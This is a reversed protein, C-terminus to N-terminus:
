EVVKLIEDFIKISEPFYKQIAEWSEPNNVKASYMEAFGEKGNNRSTWYKSGHGAGFPYDTITMISEFMDSINGRAILSYESIYDMQHGFEHFVTQYATNISSGKTVKSINLCVADVFPSYFACNAKKGTKEKYEKGTITKFNNCVSNWAKKCENPAKNLHDIIAGQHKKPYTELGGINADENYSKNDNKEIDETAKM